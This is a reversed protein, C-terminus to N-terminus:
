APFDDTISDADLPDTARRRPRPEGDAGAPSGYGAVVTALVTVGIWSVALALLFRVAATVLDLNGHTFAM